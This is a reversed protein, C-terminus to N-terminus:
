GAREGAPARLHDLVEVEFDELSQGFTEEFAIDGGGRKACDRFYDVVRELGDREILYDAMLFVMQYTARSGDRLHRLTFGRASGLSELDLRGRVVPDHHAVTRAAAARREALTDLGLRELVRFAVWEAMGEALWQEARGEGQALEIQVVHTLEHAILRLWERGHDDGPEAHLLLQRRKGVGAAFDSLEAARVPAVHADAILGREFGARSSYVYLTVRDPVPLGLDRTLIKAVGRVAAGDDGFDRAVAPAALAPPDLAVPVVVRRGTCGAATATAISVGLALARRRPLYTALWSLHGLM